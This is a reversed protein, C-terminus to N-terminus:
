LKNRYINYIIFLLIMTLLLFILIRNNSYNYINHKIKTNKYIIFYENWFEDYSLEYVYLDEDEKINSIKKLDNIYIQNKKFIYSYMNYLYNMLDDKTDLATLISINELYELYYKRFIPHPILFSSNIFVLQMNKKISKPPNLPYSSVYSAMLKWFIKEWIFQHYMNGDKKM